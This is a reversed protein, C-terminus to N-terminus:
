NFLVLQGYQDDSQILTSVNILQSVAHYGAKAMLAVLLAGRGLKDQVNYLGQV